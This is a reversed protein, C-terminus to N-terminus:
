EFKIARFKDLEHLSNEITPTWSWKVMKGSDHDLRCFNANWVTGSKPPVPSVLELSKYSIFVEARWSTIKEGLAQRGGEIEVKNLTGYTNRDYENFPIWSVGNKSNSITLLLQKGFQNVEYEFYVPDQKDPQFFVEFVDGNWIKDMDEYDSTTIIDDEGQFLVYIGKESSLVKFKSKYNSGEPDLKTLPLWETKEWEPNDGSGTIHFESCRKVLFPEQTDNTLENALGHSSSDVLSQSFSCVCLLNALVIAVTGKTRTIIRIM